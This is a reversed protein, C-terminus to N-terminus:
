HPHFLFYFVLIGITFVVFNLFNDIYKDIEIADNLTAELLEDIEDFHKHMDDRFLRCEDKFGQCADDLKNLAQDLTNMTKRAVM